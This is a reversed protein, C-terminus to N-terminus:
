SVFSGREKHTPAQLLITEDANSEEVIGDTQPKVASPQGDSPYSAQMQYYSELQEVTGSWEGCCTLTLTQKAAWLEHPMEPAVYARDAGIRKLNDIMAQQHQTLM